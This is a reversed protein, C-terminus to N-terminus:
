PSCGESRIAALAEEHLLRLFRTSTRRLMRERTDNAADDGDNVVKLAAKKAYLEAAAEDRCDRRCYKTRNNLTRFETGCVACTITRFRSRHPRPTEGAIARSVPRKLRGSKKANQAAWRCEPRCFKQLGHLQEFSEGCRACTAKPNEM